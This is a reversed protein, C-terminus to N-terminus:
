YLHNQLNYLFFDKKYGLLHCRLSVSGKFFASRKRLKCMKHSFFDNARTMHAPNRQLLSRKGKAFSFFRAAQSSRSHSKGKFPLFNGSVHCPGNNCSLFFDIRCSFIGNKHNYFRKNNVSKNNCFIDIIVALFIILKHLPM